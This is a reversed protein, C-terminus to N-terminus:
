QCHGCLSGGDGRGKGGYRVGFSYVYPLYADTLSPMCFSSEEATDAFQRGGGGM